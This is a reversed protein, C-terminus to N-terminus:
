DAANQYFVIAQETSLSLYPLRTLYYCDIKLTPTPDTVHNLKDKM